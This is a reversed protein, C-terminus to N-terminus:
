KAIEIREAITKYLLKLENNPTMKEQPGYIAGIRIKQKQNNLLIWLTQGVEDYRSVEVSITKISNRVAILIGKSNKTGDNRYIRYGPIGIQEEKALHTEVLCILNPKYDDIVEDLADIKSKLGRVNQYFIKFDKLTNKIKKSRRIKRKKQKKGNKQQEEQQLESPQRNEKNRNIDKDGDREINEKNQSEEHKYQEKKQRIINEKTQSEKHVKNQSEEEKRKGIRETTNENTELQDKNKNMIAKIYNRMTELKKELNGEKIIKQTINRNIKMHAQFKAPAKKIIYIKIYKQM